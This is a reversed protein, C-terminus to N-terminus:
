RVCLGPSSQEIMRADDDDRLANLHPRNKGVFSNARPATISNKASNTQRQREVCMKCKFSMSSSSSSLLAALQPRSFQSSSICVFHWAFLRIDRHLTCIHLRGHKSSSSSSNIVNLLASHTFHSSSILEFHITSRHAAHQM